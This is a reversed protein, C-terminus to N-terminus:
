VASKTNHSWGAQLFRGQAETIKLAGPHGSKEQGTTAM